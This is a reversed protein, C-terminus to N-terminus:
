CGEGGRDCEQGDEAAPKPCRPCEARREAESLTSWWLLPLKAVHAGCRPCYASGFSAPSLPYDM